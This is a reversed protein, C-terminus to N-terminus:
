TPLPMPLRTNWCASAREGRITTLLIGDRLLDPPDARDVKDAELDAMDDVAMAHAAISGLLDLRRQHLGIRAKGIDHAAMM